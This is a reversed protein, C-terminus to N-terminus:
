SLFLLVTARKVHLYKLNLMGTAGIQKKGPVDVFFPNLSDSLGKLDGM